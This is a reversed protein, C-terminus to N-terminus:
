SDGGYRRRLGGRLFAVGPTRAVNGFVASGLHVPAVHDNERAQLSVARLQAFLAGPGQRLMALLGVAAQAKGLHLGAALFGPPHQM